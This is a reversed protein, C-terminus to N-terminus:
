VSLIDFSLHKSLIIFFIKLAIVKNTSLASRNEAHAGAVTGPSLSTDRVELSSTAASVELTVYVGKTSFGATGFSDDIGAVAKDIVRFVM